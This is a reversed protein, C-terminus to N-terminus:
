FFVMGGWGGGKLNFPRERIRRIKLIPLKSKTLLEEYTSDTDDYIFTLARYQIKKWKIQITNV